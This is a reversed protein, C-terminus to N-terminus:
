LSCPDQAIKCTELKCIVWPYNFSEFICYKSGITPVKCLIGVRMCGIILYKKM